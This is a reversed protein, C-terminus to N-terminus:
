APNRGLAYALTGAIGPIDARILNADDRIIKLIEETVAPEQKGATLVAYYQKAIEHIDLHQEAFRRAAHGLMDRRSPNETLSKLAQYIADAEQEQLDEVSPLKICITDPIESFSGIHNIIVCKGRSLIRMLSGSTEGNSPYRLNLCIDTMDIYEKFQELNIYGTVTVADTLQHEHIYAHFLAQDEETLVLKGAFLLHVNENQQRLHYFAELIPFIRKTPHIGGFAAIIIQDPAFGYKEKCLATDALPYIKAYSPIVSINRAVDRQLLKKRAVQSHVIIHDAQNVLWGNLEYRYIDPQIQERFIDLYQKVIEEPYDATLLDAYLQFDRNSKVIALHYFAEHLNYDHLVLTGHYKRLYEYMYFHFTSNGMQFVTDAYRKHRSAYEEHHFIQVNEPFDCTPEYNDDIYVDIDCYQCLAHIIDVSYDSIGSEIPPLPTFFAICPKVSASPKECLPIKELLSIIQANVNEWRYYKKLREEGKRAYANLLAPDSLMKAMGNAISRPSDADVLMAADGGIQSLSSNDATLVPTGCAWAEVIPLGFGEYKSPFAMLSALNYFLLLEDDTVFNTFVVEKEVHSKKAVASLKQLAPESLKCVVVLQYKEKLTKPLLGFAHILGDLNKRGDEGGTCMVFPKTIGFKQFLARKKAETIALKQYHEDVGGWIINIQEEPFHLYEILDTKVSESIAFLRDAWRLSEVVRMYWQYANEDSLYQKKMVYPIIDYVTAVVRVGEFWDKEYQIYPGAFPSTIYFVDIQNEKLYRRIAAGIIDHYAPNWMLMQNQGTDLFDETFHAQNTIFESLHYEKELMNLFFYHNKRDQNIMGTFQSLTYNGIGRNKSMPGLIAAADFAINM